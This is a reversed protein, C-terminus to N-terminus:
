ETAERLGISCGSCPPSFMSYNGSANRTYGLAPGGRTQANHLSCLLPHKPKFLRLEDLLEARSWGNSYDHEELRRLVEQAIEENARQDFSNSVACLGGGVPAARPSGPPSVTESSLLFPPAPSLPRLAPSQFPLRAPAGPCVTERSAPRPPTALLEEEWRSGRDLSSRRWAPPYIAGSAVEAKVAAHADAGAAMHSALCDTTWLYHECLEVMRQTGIAAAMEFLLNFSM